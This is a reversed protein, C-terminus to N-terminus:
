RGGAAVIAAANEARQAASTSWTMRGLVPYQGGSPPGVVLGEHHSERVDDLDRGTTHGTVRESDLVAGRGYCCVVEARRARALVDDVWEGPSVYVVRQADYVTVVARRRAAKM